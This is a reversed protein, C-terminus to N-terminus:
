DTSKHYIDAAKKDLDTMDPDMWGWFNKDEQDNNNNDNNNNNDTEELSYRHSGDGTRLVRKKVM